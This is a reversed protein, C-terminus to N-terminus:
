RAPGPPDLQGKGDNAVAGKNYVGGPRNEGARNDRVVGIDRREEGGPEAETQDLNRDNADQNGEQRHDRKTEAAAAIVVALGVKPREEPIRGRAGDLLPLAAAVVALRTKGPHQIVIM